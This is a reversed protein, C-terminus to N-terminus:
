MWRCYMPPPLCSWWSCRHGAIVAWVVKVKLVIWCIEVHATTWRYTLRTSIKTTSIAVRCLSACAHLQALHSQIPLLLYKFLATPASVGQLEELSPILMPACCADPICSSTLLSHTRLDLGELEGARLWLSPTEHEQASSFLEWNM